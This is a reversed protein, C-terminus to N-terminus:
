FEIGKRAAIKKEFPHRICKMETIYDSHEVLYDAPDRGTLVLEMEYPKTTILEELLQKDIINWNYPYTIEDLILVDCEGNKIIGIIIKLNDTHMKRIEQKESDSMQFFFGFDKTNRIVAINEIKEFSRLESTDNGKLFQAFVVRKGAGAARVALGIAATTKGKGDGHYLHTLGPDSTKLLKEMAIRRVTIKPNINVAEKELYEKTDM